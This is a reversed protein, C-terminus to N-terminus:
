LNEAAGRSVAATANRDASCPDPCLGRRAPWIREDFRTTPECEHGCLGASSQCACPLIERRRLETKGFYSRGSCTERSLRVAM